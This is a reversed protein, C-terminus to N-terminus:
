ILFAKSHQKLTSSQLNFNTTKQMSSNQIELFTRSKQGTLNPTVSQGSRKENDSFMLHTYGSILVIGLLVVILLLIRFGNLM